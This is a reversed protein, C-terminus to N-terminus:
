SKSRNSFKVQNIKRHSPKWKGTDLEFCSGGEPYEDKYALSKNTKNKEAFINDKNEGLLKIQLLIAFLSLSRWYPFLPRNEEMGGFSMVFRIM